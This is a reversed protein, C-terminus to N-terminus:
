ASRRVMRRWGTALGAALLMLSAPEPIPSGQVLNDIGTNIQGGGTTTWRLQTIAEDSVIGLFGVVTPDGTLAFTGLLGSAGFVQVSAPGLGNLYTDFGVATSPIGLDIRFDEDGNATLVASGTVPVGFNTYGASAVWVNPTPSGALGTYTNGNSVFSALATDKPLFAEFDEVLTTSTVLGFATADTFFITAAHCTAAVALSFAGALLGIVPLRLKSM